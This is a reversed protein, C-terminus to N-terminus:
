WPWIVTGPTSPPVSKFNATSLEAWQYCLFKGLQWGQDWSQEYPATPPIVAACALIGKEGM